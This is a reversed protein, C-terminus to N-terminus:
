KAAENWEKLARQDDLSPRKEAKREEDYIVRALKFLRWRETAERLEPMRVIQRRFMYFLKWLTRSQRESIMPEDSKAISAISRAFRKNFSAVPFTCRDLLLAAQKEDNTMPYQDTM